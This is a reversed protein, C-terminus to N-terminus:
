ESLNKLQKFEHIGTNHGDQWNISLAYQGVIEIKVVELQEKTYIPIYSSSFEEKESSCVACPCQDRLNALKILSVSDDNWTIHLKSKDKISIQTPFM